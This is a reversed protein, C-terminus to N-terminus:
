REITGLNEDTLYLKHFCANPGVFIKLLFGNCKLFFFVFDKVQSGTFVIKGRSAHSGTARYIKMM